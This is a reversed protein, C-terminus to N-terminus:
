LSEFEEPHESQFKNQEESSLTQFKEWTMINEKAKANVNSGSPTVDINAFDDKIKKETSEKISNFETVFANALDLTAQEDEKVFKSVLNNANEESIGAGILVSKAKVSNALKKYNKMQEELAKQQQEFKEQETMQSQKIKQLEDDSLKLRNIEGQNKTITENLFKIQNDKEAVENHITNLLTTVQEETAGEGLIKRADERTM